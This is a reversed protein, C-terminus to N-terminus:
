GHQQLKPIIENKKIVSYYNMTYVYLLVVGEKDMGKNIPMSTAEMDQSSYGTSCHVDPHMYGKPGHKRQIHPWFHSQLTM